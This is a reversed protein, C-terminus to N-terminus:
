RPVKNSRRAASLAKPSSRPPNLAQRAATARAREAIAAAEHEQIARVASQKASWIMFEELSMNRLSAAFELRHRLAPALRIQVPTNHTLDTEAM